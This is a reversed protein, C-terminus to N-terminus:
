FSLGVLLEMQNRKTHPEHLGEGAWHTYRLVPAAKLKWAHAEIGLGITGGYSSPATGNLNGSSRFSPGAVAFPRVTHTRVRYKALVPFEWTVVTNPAGNNQPENSPAIAFTFNLPRYLADVEFAVHPSLGFEVMPGAVYDKHMTYFRSQGTEQGGGPLPFFYTTTQGVDDTLSGGAVLGFSLRRESSDTSASKRSTFVIGSSIQLHIPTAGVFNVVLLEPQVIRYSLRETIRYDLSAGLSGTFANGGAVTRHSFTVTEGNPGFPLQIPARLPLVLTNM